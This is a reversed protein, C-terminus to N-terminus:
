APLGNRPRRAAVLAGVVCSAFLLGEIAALVMRTTPGFRVEGFFHGIADLQLRSEAFSRALLDLSGGLLHGGALVILVGCAAGTAAAAAVPRWWPSAEFGGGLHAGLGVALGLAAGEMGGTIGAPTRGFLLNFADVGLLKVSGGVLMGGLVAGAIRWAARGGAAYEAAAIGAGVGFGGMTGLFGSLTILVLLISATGPQPDPPAHALGFGYLLGGFLGAIAGGLTGALATALATALAAAGRDALRTPSPFAEGAAPTAPTSAADPSGAAEGDPLPATDDRAVTSVGAIFRYGHRPVTQIFRPNAADDGLVRRIAKIGQTLASDSVVVDAWVEEFFREKAVLRGHERVLLALADFYRANLELRKEGLRLERNTVDLTFDGFRYIPTEQVISM